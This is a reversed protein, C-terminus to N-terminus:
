KRNILEWYGVSHWQDFKWGVENFVGIKNFGFFDHLAISADNPLAIGAIISHIDEEFTLKILEAYLKKGIGKGGHDKHLYISSEVSTDYAKREKWRAVYAYGLIQDDEEWVIYPYDHQITKIRQLMQADTLPTYEFSIATNQIYHNYINAIAHADSSRIHRIM